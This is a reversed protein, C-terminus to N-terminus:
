RYIIDKLATIAGAYAGLRALELGIVWLGLPSNDYCHSLSPDELEEGFKKILSTPVLALALSNKIGPKNETIQELKEM